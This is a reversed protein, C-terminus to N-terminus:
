YTPSSNTHHGDVVEPTANKQLIPKNLRGRMLAFVINAALLGELLYALGGHLICVTVSIASVLLGFGVQGRYTSPSTPPDTLMFLALFLASHIFPSRVAEAAGDHHFLGMVLFTTVYVFLFTFVLPLKNVRDVVAYGIILVFFITWSPLHPLGGWWSEMASPFLLAVWLGFAAPNFIPKRNTKMIHKSLISVMSAFATLAWPTTASLVLGCILGTLWAGDPLRYKYGFWGRILLDLVVASIVAIGLHLLHAVASDTGWSGFAALLLLGVLLYGKPTRLYQSLNM